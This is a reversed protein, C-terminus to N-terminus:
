RDLRYAETRLRVLLDTVGVDAGLQSLLTTVQGRHHTQHNFFHGLALSLPHAYRTGSSTRYEITRALAPADLQETWTRIADDTANRERTLVRFDAYLEQALSRILIPEGNPDRSAFRETDGTFRLMWARDALLLHNLTGHVSRFFAGMDRKRDADTLGECVTYLRGNMWQNYDAMARYHDLLDM